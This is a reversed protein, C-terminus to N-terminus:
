LIVGLTALIMLFLYRPRALLGEVQNALHALRQIATLLGEGGGRLVLREEFWHLLAAV